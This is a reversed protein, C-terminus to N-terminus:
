YFKGDSLGCRVNSGVGGIEAYYTRPALVGKQTYHLSLILLCDSILAALRPELGSHAKQRLQASKQM